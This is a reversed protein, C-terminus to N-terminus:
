DKEDLFFWQDTVETLGDESGSTVTVVAYYEDKMLLLEQQYLPIGYFKGTINLVSKPEGAFTIEGISIALDEYGAQKLMNEVTPALQKLIDKEPYLLMVANPLPSLRMNINQMGSVAKAAMNTASGNDKLSEAMVETLGKEEMLKNTVSMMTALEEDTFFVWDDPLEFGLGFYENVYVDDEIRGLATEVDVDTATATSAAAGTTMVVFLACLLFVAITKKKM